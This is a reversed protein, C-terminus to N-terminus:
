KGSTGDKGLKVGVMRAMDTVDENGVALNITLEYTAAKLGASHGIVKRFVHQNLLATLKAGNTSAGPIAHEGGTGKGRLWSSKWRIRGRFNWAAVRQLCLFFQLALKADGGTASRAFEMAHYDLKAFTEAPTRNLFHDEILQWLAALAKQNTVGSARAWALVLGAADYSGYLEPHSLVHPELWPARLLTGAQAYLLRGSTADAGWLWHAEALTASKRGEVSQRLIDRLPRVPNEPTIGLGAAEVAAVSPMSARRRFAHIFAEATYPPLKQDKLVAILKEASIFATGDRAWERIRCIDIIDGSPVPIRLPDALPASLITTM